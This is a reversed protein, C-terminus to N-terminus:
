EWAYRGETVEKRRGDSGDEKRVETRRGDGSGEQLVVQPPPQLMSVVGDHPRGSALKLQGESLPVGLVVVGRLGQLM